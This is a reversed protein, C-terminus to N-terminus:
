QTGPLTGAQRRQLQVAGQAAGRAWLWGERAQLFGISGAKKALAKDLILISTKVGSYPNFVAAPLSVVAVLYEEVLVKRLQKYANQSQFIIGEPM